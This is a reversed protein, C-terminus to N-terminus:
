KYLISIIPEEKIIFEEEFENLSSGRVDSFYEAVFKEQEMIEISHPILRRTYKIAEDATKVSLDNTIKLCAAITGTRGKGGMCHMFVNGEKLAKNIKNALLEVSSTDSPVSYDDSPFHIIEIGHKFYLNEVLDLNELLVVATKIQRRQSDFGFSRGEPLPGVYLRYSSDKHTLPYHKM